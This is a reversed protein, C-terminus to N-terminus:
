HEKVAKRYSYDFLLEWELRAAQRAVSEAGLRGGAITQCLDVFAYPDWTSQRALFETETDLPHDAALEGVSKCLDPFIAHDGVRRFWYKANSYDPERRHMIGHWYSGTTSHIKQSITHSEDLFSHLLWLASLCCDAMDHDVVSHGAFLVEVDVAALKDAMDRNEEGTGLECLRDGGVIKKINSSYYKVDFYFM